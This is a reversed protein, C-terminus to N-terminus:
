AARETHNDREERGEATNAISEEHQQKMKIKEELEKEKKAKEKWKKEKRADEKALKEKRSRAGQQKREQEMKKQKKSEEESEKDLLKWNLRATKLGGRHECVRDKPYASGLVKKEKKMEAWGPAGDCQRTLQQNEVFMWHERTCLADKKSWNCIYLMVNGYKSLVLLRTKKPVLYLDCYRFMSQQAELYENERFRPKDFDCDHNSIYFPEQFQTALTANDRHPAPFAVREEKAPLSPQYPKNTDDPDDIPPLDVAAMVDLTKNAHSLPSKPIQLGTTSTFLTTLLLLLLFPSYKLAMKVKRSSKNSTPRNVHQINPSQKPPQAM